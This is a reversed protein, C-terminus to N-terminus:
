NTFYGQILIAMVAGFIASLTGTLWTQLASRRKANVLDTKLELVKKDFEEKFEAIQTQTVFTPLLVDLKQDIKNVTSEVSTLKTEVAVLREGESLRTM